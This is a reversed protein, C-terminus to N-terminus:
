TAHDTEALGFFTEHDITRALLHRKPRLMGFRVGSKRIHARAKSGSMISEHSGIEQDQPVYYDLARALDSVAQWISPIELALQAQRWILRRYADPNRGSRLLSTATLDILWRDREGTEKTRVPIGNAIWYKREAAPGAASKIGLTQLHWGFEGLERAQNIQRNWADTVYVAGSYSIGKSNNPLSSILTQMGIRPLGCGLAYQVVAHGAEHHCTARIESAHKRGLSEGVRPPDLAFMGSNYTCFIGAV